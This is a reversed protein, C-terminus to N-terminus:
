SVTNLLLSTAKLVSIAVSDWVRKSSSNLLVQGQAHWKSANYLHMICICKFHMICFALIICMHIWQGKLDRQTKDSLGLLWLCGEKRKGERGSGLQLKIM